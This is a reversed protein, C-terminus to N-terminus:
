LRGDDEPLHSGDEIKTNLDTNSLIVNKLMRYNVCLYVSSIRNMAATIIIFVIKLNGRNGYFDSMPSMKPANFIANWSSDCHLM